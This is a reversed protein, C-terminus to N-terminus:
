TCVRTVIQLIYTVLSILLLFYPIVFKNGWMFLCLCISHKWLYMWRTGCYPFQSSFETDLLVFMGGPLCLLDSRGLDVIAFLSLIIMCVHLRGSNVM